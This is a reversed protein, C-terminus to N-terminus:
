RRKNVIHTPNPLIIHNYRENLRNMQYPDRTYVGHDSFFHM